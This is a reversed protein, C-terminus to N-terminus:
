RSCAPARRSRSSRTRRRPLSSRSRSARGNGGRAVRDVADGAARRLDGRRVGRARPRDRRRCLGLEAGVVPVFVTHLDWGVAFLTNLVLVRRVVRHRWLDALARPRERAGRRGGARAIRDPRVRARRAARAARRGAAPLHLPLRRRRDRARGRAARGHRFDLLRACAALVAERAQAARGHRRHGAARPDPVPHLRLGRRDVVPLARPLRPLARAARDLVRAARQGRDDGRACRRSRRLARDGGLLADAAARVVGHARRGDRRLRRARARRARRRRAPGRAGLPQPHGLGVLTAFSRRAGPADSM